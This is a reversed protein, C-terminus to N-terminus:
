ESFNLKAKVGHHLRAATDYAHAAEIEDAFRGLYLRGQKTMIQAYWRERRSNWSVGRYQSPKSQHIPINDNPHPQSPVDNLRAFEGFYKQAAENYALVAERQTVFLGLFIEKGFVKIRARWGKDHWNVGKYQSASNKHGRMNQRNQTATALRLNARTNNLGNGDRHDIEVGPQAAVIQRHMRVMSPRGVAHRFAYGDARYYWTYQSLEDFDCDDVLAFQGKGKEGSLPIQKTM